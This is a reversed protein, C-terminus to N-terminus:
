DGLGNMEQILQHVIWSSLHCRAIRNESVRHSPRAADFHAM